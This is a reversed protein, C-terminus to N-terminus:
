LMHFIKMFNNEWRLVNNQFYHTITVLNLKYIRIDYGIQKPEEKKTGM